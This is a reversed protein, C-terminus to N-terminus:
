LRLQQATFRERTLSVQPAAGRRDLAKPLSENPLAAACVRRQPLRAFREALAALAWSTGARSRGFVAV